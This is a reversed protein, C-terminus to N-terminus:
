EKTFLRIQKICNQLNKGTAIRTAEPLGRAGKGGITVNYGNPIQTNLSSIFFEEFDFGDQENDAVALVKMEPMGMEAIAQSIPLEPMKVSRQLHETLRHNPDKSVGVYCKSNSFTLCYVFREQKKGDTQPLYNTNM